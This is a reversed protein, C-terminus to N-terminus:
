WKRMGGKKAPKVVLQKKIEYMHKELENMICVICDLKDRTAGIKCFKGPSVACDNKSKEVM